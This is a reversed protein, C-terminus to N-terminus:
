GLLLDRVRTKRTAETKPRIPIKLSGTLRFTEPNTPRQLCLMDLLDVSSYSADSIDLSEAPIAQM